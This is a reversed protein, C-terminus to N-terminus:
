YSVGCILMIDYLSGCAFKGIIISLWLKTCISYANDKPDRKSGDVCSKIFGHLKYYSARNMVYARRFMYKDLHRFTNQELGKM